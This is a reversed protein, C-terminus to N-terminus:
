CSGERRFIVAEAVYWHSGMTFACALMSLSFMLQLTIPSSLSMVGFYILAISFGVLRGWAGMQVFFSELFLGLALGVVGLILTDVFFAVVRRWFGSIWKLEKGENM